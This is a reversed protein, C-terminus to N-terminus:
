TFRSMERAALVMEWVAPAPPLQDRPLDWVRGTSLEERWASDDVRLRQLWAEYAALAMGIRLDRQPIDNALEAEFTSILERFAALGARASTLRLGTEPDEGRLRRLELTLEHNQEATGAGPRAEALDHRRAWAEVLRNEEVQRNVTAPNRPPPADRLTSLRRELGERREALGRRTLPRPAPGSFFAQDPVQEADPPLFKAAERLAAVAATLWTRATARPEGALHGPNAPVADAYQEAAWWWQGPDLLESPREGRGYVIEAPDASDESVDPVRFVFERERGCGQCTGAYRRGPTGDDLTIAEGATALRRDGCECPTLDLYLHAEQRTRALRYATM